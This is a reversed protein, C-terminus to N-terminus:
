TRRPMVGLGRGKRGVTGLSCYREIVVDKFEELGQDESLRELDNKAEAAGHGGASCLM